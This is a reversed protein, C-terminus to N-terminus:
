PPSNLLFHPTHARATCSCTCRQSVKREERWICLRNARRVCRRTVAGGVRAPVRACPRTYVYVPFFLGATEVYVGVCVCVYFYMSTSRNVVAVLLRAFSLRLLCFPVHSPAAVVNPHYVCVCLCARVSVCVCM